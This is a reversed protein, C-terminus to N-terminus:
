FLEFCAGRRPVPMICRFGPQEAKKIEIADMISYDDWFHMPFIVKAGVNSIFYETGLYWYSEQRPDMTLFAIDIRTGKLRDIERKFRAAMDNNWAKSEEEWHWWNLDGAHYIVLGDTEVLFAVGEDTSKLTSISIGEAPSIREWPRMVINGQHYQRPIDWSLIYRIHPVKERWSFIVPNFHDPHRHSSFVFTEFGKIEEPEIVGSDMSRKGSAPSDNYYDFVFLRNGTEVAYGSHYLYHVRVKGM